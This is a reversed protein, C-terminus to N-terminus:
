TEDFFTSNEIFNIFCDRSSAFLHDSPVVFEYLYSLVIKNIVFDNNPVCRHHIFPLVFCSVRLIVCVQM